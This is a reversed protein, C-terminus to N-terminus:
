LKQKEYSESNKTTSLALKTTKKSHKFFVEINWRTRYINGIFDDSFIKTDSLSPAHGIYWLSSSLLPYPFCHNYKIFGPLFGPRKNSTVFLLPRMSSNSFINIFLIRTLNPTLIKRRLTNM